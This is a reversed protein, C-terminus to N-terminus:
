YYEKVIGGRPGRTLRFLFGDGYSIGDWLTTEHVDVWAQTHGTDELYRRFKSIAGVHSSVTNDRTPAEPELPMPPIGSYILVTFKRLEPEDKATPLPPEVNHTAAAWADFMRNLNSETFM